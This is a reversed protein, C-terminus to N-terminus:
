RYQKYLVPSKSSRALLSAANKFDILEQESCTRLPKTSGTSTDWLMEGICNDKAESMQKGLLLLPLFLSKLAPQMEDTLNKLLTKTYFTNIQEWEKAKKNKLQLLNNELRVTIRLLKAVQSLKISNQKSFNDVLLVGVANEDGKVEKGATNVKIINQLAINKILMTIIGLSLNHMEGPVFAAIKQDEIDGIPSRLPNVWLTPSTAIYASVMADLVELSTTLDGNISLPRIKPDYDKLDDASLVVHTDSLVDYFYGPSDTKAFEPHLEDLKEVASLGNKLTTVPQTHGKLTLMQAFARHFLVFSCLREETADFKDTPEDLLGSLAASLSSETDKSLTAIDKPLLNTTTALIQNLNPLAEKYGLKKALSLYLADSPNVEEAFIGPFMSNLKKNIGFFKAKTLSWQSVKAAQIVGYEITSLKGIRYDNEIKTLFEENTPTKFKEALIIKTLPSENLDIVGLFNKVKDSANGSIDFYLNKFLSFKSANKNYITEDQKKLNSLQVCASLKKFIPDQYSPVLDVTLMNQKLDPVYSRKIQPVKKPSCAVVALALMTNIFFSLINKVVKM